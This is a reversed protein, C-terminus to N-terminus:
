INLRKITPPTIDAPNVPDTLEPRNIKLLDGQAKVSFQDYRRRQMVTPQKLSFRVEQGLWGNIAYVDTSSLIGAQEKLDFIGEVYNYRDDAYGLQTQTLSTVSDLVDVMTRTGVIYGAKTAELQNRASIIAEEDARIESIGSEIGLYAQRTRNEVSRHDMELKDSASLYQYRVQRTNVIDFGGRLIPFSLSVGVSGVQTRTVPVIDQFPPQLIDGAWTDSYSSVFNLQPLNATAAGKVNERLSFMLNLDAQILYNQRLAIDVWANINRPSPILLPIRVDLKALAKYHIGTIARLNELQDQLENRDKIEDAISRDFSAQADYVGTIAILGVKFKEESQILQQRFQEKQALTLQLKDNARLVEFYAFAVRRMLDQVAALYQATAAKVVFSASSIAYWTPLNFLPQTISVSYGNNGFSGSNEGNANSQAEKAYNLSGSVAINPFLGTGAVGNGTLALPFNQKATLWDAQAKKFAPDSILAQQYVQALNACFVASQIVMLILGVIIRRRIKRM